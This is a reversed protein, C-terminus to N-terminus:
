GPIFEEVGEEGVVYPLGAEVPGGEARYSVSGMDMGPDPRREMNRLEENLDVSPLGPQDGMKTGALPSIQSPIPSGPGPFRGLQGMLDPSSQPKAPKEMEGVSEEATDDALGPQGSAFAKIKERIMDAQHKIQNSLLGMEAKYIDVAIKAQETGPGASEKEARALALVTEAKKKGVDALINELDLQFKQMDMQLRIGSEQAQQTLRQAKAQALLVAPNPQEGQKAIEEDTFLVLNVNDPQIAKVLRRTLEVENIGPRGSLDKLAQAKLLRQMDSSLNPDAVPVVLMDKEQYDKQGVQYSDGEGYLYFTFDPELYRANLEYLKKFEETLSRYVRKYIATFVKLGQEVLAMVTGVPMTAALNSEGTMVNQVSSIEQGATVLFGLLQFLVPSPEKIPMPVINEKLAGGQVDLLKWEGPTFSFNGGRM